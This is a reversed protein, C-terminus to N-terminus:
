QRHVGILSGGRLFYTVLTASVRYREGGVRGGVGGGDPPGRKGRLVHPPIPAPNGSRTEVAPDATNKAEIGRRVPRGNRIRDTSMSVAREAARRSGTMSHVPHPEVSGFTAPRMRAGRAPADPGASRDVAM